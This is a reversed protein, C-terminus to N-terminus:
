AAQYFVAQCVIKKVLGSDLNFTSEACGLLPYGQEALSSRIGGLIKKKTDVDFYILVNRCLVLDFRGLAQPSQHLDFHQGTEHLLM